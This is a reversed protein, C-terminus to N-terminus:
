FTDVQVKQGNIRATVPLLSFSHQGEEEQRGQLDKLITIM